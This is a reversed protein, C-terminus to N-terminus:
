HEVLIKEMADIESELLNIAHGMQTAMEKTLPKGSIGRTSFDMIANIMKHRKEMADRLQATTATKSIELPSGPVKRLDTM